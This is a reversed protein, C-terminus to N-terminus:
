SHPNLELLTVQIVFPALFAASGFSGNQVFRGSKDIPKDLNNEHTECDDWSKSKTESFVACNIM